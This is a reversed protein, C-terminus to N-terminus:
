GRVITSIVPAQEGLQVWELITKVGSTMSNAAVCFKELNLIEQSYVGTELHIKFFEM